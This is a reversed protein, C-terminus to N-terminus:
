QPLSRAIAYYIAGLAGSALLFPGIAQLATARTLYAGLFAMLGVFAFFVAASVKVGAGATAFSLGVGGVVAVLAFLWVYHHSLRKDKDM